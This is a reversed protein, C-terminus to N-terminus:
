RGNHGLIGQIWDGKSRFHIVIIDAIEQGNTLQHTTTLSLLLKRAALPLPPISPSKLNDNSTFGQTHLPSVPHIVAFFTDSALSHQLSTAACLLSANFTLSVM